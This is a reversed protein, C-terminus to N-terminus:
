NITRAPPMPSMQSVPAVAKSTTLWNFDASMLLILHIFLALAMLFSFLAMLSRRPDFLQWIRHM